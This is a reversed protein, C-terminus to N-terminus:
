AQAAPGNIAQKDDFVTAALVAVVLAAAELAVALASMALSAHQKM